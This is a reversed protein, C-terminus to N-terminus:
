DGTSSPDLRCIGNELMEHQMDLTIHFLQSVIWYRKEKLSLGEDLFLIKKESDWLCPDECDRCLIEDYPVQKIVVKYGFPLSLSKPISLSM